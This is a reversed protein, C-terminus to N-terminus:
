TQDDFLRRVVPRYDVESKTLTEVKDYVQTPTLSTHEDKTIDRVINKIIDKTYNQFLEFGEECENKLIRGFVMIDPDKCKNSYIHVSNIITTIWDLVLPKLGYKQNLFTYLYQEM